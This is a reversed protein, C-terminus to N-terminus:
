LVDRVVQVSPYVVDEAAFLSVLLSDHREVSEAFDSVRGLFLAVEIHTQNIVLGQLGCILALAVIISLCRRLKELSVLAM